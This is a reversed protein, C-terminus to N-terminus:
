FGNKCMSYCFINDMIQFNDGGGEGTGGVMFIQSKSLNGREHIFLTDDALNVVGVLSHYFVCM